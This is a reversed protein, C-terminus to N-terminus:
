KLPIKEYYPLTIFMILFNTYEELSFHHSHATSYEKLYKKM